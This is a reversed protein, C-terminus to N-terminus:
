GMPGSAAREVRGEIVRRAEPPLQDLPLAILHGGQVPHRPLVLFGALERPAAFAHWRLTGEGVFSAEFLGAEDLRYRLPERELLEFQATVHQRVSERTMGILAIATASGALLAAAWWPMGRGMLLATAAAVAVIWLLTRARGVREVVLADYLPLLRDLRHTVTFEM